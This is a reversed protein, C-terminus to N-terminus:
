GLKIVKAVFLILLVYAVTICGLKGWFFFLAPWNVRAPVVFDKGIEGAKERQRHVRGWILAGVAYQLLDFALAVVILVGPWLLPKPVQSIGAVDSRFLWIIAIGAFGLQRAIESAKGSLEQYAARADELKM